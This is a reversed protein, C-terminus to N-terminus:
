VDDGASERGPELEGSGASSWSARAKGANWLRGRTAALVPHVLVGEAAPSRRM